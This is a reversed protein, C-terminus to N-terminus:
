KAYYFGDDPLKGGIVNVGYVGFINVLTNKMDVGDIFKIGNSLKLLAGKAPELEPLITSDIVYQAASENNETNSMYEISAKYASLFNEVAIPHEALFENRAVICGMAIPTDFKADWLADIDLVIKHKATPKSMANYAVHVPALIIDAKNKVIVPAIQDPSNITDEGITHAITANVGYANLLAKLILKPTGQLSTYITKGELDSISNVTVNDNTLLCISNLCNIALVKFEASENYFKAAAETSVCAIDLNGAKLDIIAKDPATYKNFVYQGDSSTGDNDKILKAMGIGTPGALFGVKIQTDDTSGAGSNDPTCSAFTLISMTLLLLTALLKKM